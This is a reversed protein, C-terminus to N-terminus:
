SAHYVNRKFDSSTDFKAKLYKRLLDKQPFGYCVKSILTLYSRPIADCVLLFDMILFDKPAILYYKFKSGQDV